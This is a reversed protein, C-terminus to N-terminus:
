EQVKKPSRVRTKTKDKNVTAALSMLVEKMESITQKPKEKTTDWEILFDNVTHLKTGKKGHIGIALNSIITAIYAFYYDIRMMGIPDMKDYEEWEALQTATLHEL